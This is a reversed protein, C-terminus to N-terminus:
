KIKGYQELGKNLFELFGEIDLNYGRTGTLRKGDSSELVYLPQASVDYHKLGIHSNIKGLTKLTKGSSTVIWDEQPVEKKDDCYLAVIVYDNKLIELVRPDSWVRAEMERCNVCGHGTFDIFLPKGAKGAFERAQELDFFGKLGLPLKLFDSYKVTGDPHHVASIKESKERHDFFLGKEQMPPLYGSLAKLPAGFLGTFLYIIFAATIVSFTIRVWSWKRKREVANMKIGGLLFILMFTFIVIWIILYTDRSLLGWHYTQDAVSLFKFGLALEILGIIVKVSGLWGGSKPLRKLWSPFMALLAFPLAFAASFAFMTLIPTWFEGSTSKILVTGVIPGTCSFSVLVLTLAMFFIGGIGKIDAKSDTKTTLRGPLTIEFAGLFSAAFVMFVTFFLLNPLWHTALWNFIDATVSDGGFIRTVIIIAAIPITYLLIIFIGYLIARIRGQHKNDSGKMFFSVTMPVMPFVCPTILAAFGWLIAELIMLWISGDSASSLPVTFECEALPQCNEDDCAMWEVMIEAKANEYEEPVEVTQSFSIEDEYYGIDMMFVDDYYRVPERSPTVPGVASLGDSLTISVITPNPGFDYPGMDYIHWSPAISATIDIKYLNGEMATVDTEWKVKVDSSKNGCSALVTLVSLLLLLHKSLNTM